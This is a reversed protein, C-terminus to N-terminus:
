ESIIALIIMCLWLENANMYHHCCCDFPIVYGVISEYFREEVYNPFAVVRTVHALM